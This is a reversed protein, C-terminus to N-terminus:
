KKPQAAADSAIQDNSVRGQKVNQQRQFTQPHNDAGLETAPRQTRGGTPRPPTPRPGRPQSASSAPCNLAQRLLSSRTPSPRTSATLRASTNRYTEATKRSVRRTPTSVDNGGSIMSITTSHGDQQRQHIPVENHYSTTTNDNGTCTRQSANLFTTTESRVANSAGNQIAAFESLKEAVQKICEDASPHHQKRNARHIFVEPLPDAVIVTPSSETKDPTEARDRSHQVADDVSGSLLTMTETGHAAPPRKLETM